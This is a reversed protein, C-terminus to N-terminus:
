GQFQSIKTYVEFFCFALFYFPVYLGYLTFRPKSLAEQKEVYLAYIDVYIYHLNM